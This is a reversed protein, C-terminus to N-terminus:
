KKALEIIIPLAPDNADGSKRPAMRDPIIGVGELRVGKYTVYDEIPYQLRFGYPLREGVSALVAGMTRTGVITAGLHEKLAAAIIESASATNHDVLVVIKGHYLPTLPGRPMVKNAQFKALTVADRPPSGFKDNYAKASSKDIFTGIATERDLFFSALHQFATVYGGDNGRLDIALMTAKKNRVEDMFESIKSAPYTMFSPIKLLAIGDEIWSLESRAFGTREQTPAFSKTGGPSGPTGPTTGPNGMRRPRRISGAILTVHSSGFSAFMRNVTRALEQRSTIKALRDQYQEVMKPWRHFDVGVAFASTELKDGVRKLIEERQASTLADPNEIPAQATASQSAGILRLTWVLGNVFGHKTKM